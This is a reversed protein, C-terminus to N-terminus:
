KIFLKQFLTKYQVEEKQKEADRMKTVTRTKEIDRYKIETHCVSKTPEKKIQYWCTMPTGSAYTFSWTGTETRTPQVFINVTDILKNEKTDINNSYGDIQWTGATDDINQIKLNCDERFSTCAYHTCVEDFRICNGWFNKEACVSEHADCIQNVCINTSTGWEIISKLNIDDCVNDTYPEKETYTEQTEYPEKVTYTIMGSVPFKIISGIISFLIIITLIIYVIFLKKKNEAVVEKKVM